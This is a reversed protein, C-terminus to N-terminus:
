QGLARTSQILPVAARLDDAGGGEGAMIHALGLAIHGLALAKPDTVRPVIEVLRGALRSAAPAGALYFSAHRASRAVHETIPFTM